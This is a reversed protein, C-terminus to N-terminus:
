RPQDGPVLSLTSVRWDVQPQGERALGTAIDGMSNVYVLAKLLPFSSAQLKASDLWFSQEESTGTVGLQTVLVQKNLVEVQAYRATFLDEFSRLKGEGTRDSVPDVFLSVGVYDAFNGGPWYDLQNPSGRTSWLFSANSAVSRCLGVFRRYATKYEDASLTNWPLGIDEDMWPAWAVVVSNGSEAIDSCIELSLEDYQGGAVDDLLSPSKLDRPYPELILLPLRGRTKSYALQNELLPTSYDMWNLVFEDIAVGETRSFQEDPDYVGLPITPLPAISAHTESYLIGHIGDEGRLAAAVALSMGAMLFSIVLVLNSGLFSNRM